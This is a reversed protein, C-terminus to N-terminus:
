SSLSNGVKYPVWVKMVTNVLTRWQDSDQDLHMWGVVKWGSERIHMRINGDVRLDESRYRAHM